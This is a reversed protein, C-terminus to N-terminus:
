LYLDRSRSPWIYFWLVISVHISGPLLLCHVMSDNFWQVMSTSQVMPGSSSQVISSSPMISGCLRDM